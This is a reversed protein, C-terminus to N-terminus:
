FVVSIIFCAQVFILCIETKKIYLISLHNSCIASFLLFPFPLSYEYYLEIKICEIDILSM